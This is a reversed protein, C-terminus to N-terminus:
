QTATPTAGSDPTQPGSQKEDRAEKASKNFVSMDIEKQLRDSEVMPDTIAELNEAFKEICEAQEPSDAGTSAEARLIEEMQLTEDLRYAVTRLSVPDRMEFVDEHLGTRGILLGNRVNDFSTKGCETVVAAAGKKAPEGATVGHERGLHSLKEYLM